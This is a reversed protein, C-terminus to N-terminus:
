TRKGGMELSDTAESTVAKPAPDGNDKISQYWMVGLITIACGVANLPTVANHFILVSAVISLAVKL